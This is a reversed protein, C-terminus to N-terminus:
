SWHTAIFFVCEEPSINAFMLFSTYKYCLHFSVCLLAGFIQYLDDPIRPLRFPERLFLHGGGKPDVPGGVAM